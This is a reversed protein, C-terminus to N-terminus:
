QKILSSDNFIHLNTVHKCKDKLEDLSIKMFVAIDNEQFEKRKDLMLYFQFCGIRSSLVLLFYGYFGTAIHFLISPPFIINLPNLCLNATAIISTGAGTAFVCDALLGTAVAVGDVM